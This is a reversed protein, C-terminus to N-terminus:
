MTNQSATNTSTTSASHSSLSISSGKTAPRAIAYKSVGSVSRSSRKPMLRSAAAKNIM